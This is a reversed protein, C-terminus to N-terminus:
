AFCEASAELASVGHVRALPRIRGLISEVDDSDVPQPSRLSRARGEHSWHRQPQDPVVLWTLTSRRPRNTLWPEFCEASHRRPQRSLKAQASVVTRSRDTPTPPPPNPSGMHLRERRGPDRGYDVQLRRSKVLWSWTREVVWRQPLLVFAPPHIRRVVEADVGRRSCHRVFTNKFGSDCRLKELRSTKSEGEDFM